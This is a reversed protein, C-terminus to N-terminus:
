NDAVKVSLMWAFKLRVLNSNFGPDNVVGTVYCNDNLGYWIPISVVTVLRQVVIAWYNLGYWIPISVQKELQRSLNHILKLRVLNSNFSANYLVGGLLSYLNLGYWIPISVSFSTLQIRSSTLKLRVLNSNFSGFARAATETYYQNLGYWIPISVKLQLL